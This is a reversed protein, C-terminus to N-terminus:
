HASACEALLCRGWRLRRVNSSSQRPTFTYLAGHAREKPGMRQGMLNAPARFLGNREGQAAEWTMREVLLCTTPRFLREAHCMAIVAIALDATAGGGGQRSEFWGAKVSGPATRHHEAMGDDFSKPM